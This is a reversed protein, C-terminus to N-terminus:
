ETDRDSLMREIMTPEYRELLTVPEFRGGDDNWRLLDMAHDRVALFTFQRAHPRVHDWPGPVLAWTGSNAYLAGPRRSLRRFDAVHTHGLAVLPVDLIAAIREAREALAEPLSQEKVNLRRNFISAAVALGFVTAVTLVAMLSTRAFVGGSFWEAQQILNFLLFWVSAALLLFLVFFVVARVIPRMMERVLAYKTVGIPYRRLADLAYIREGVGTERGLAELRRRNELGRRHRAGPAESRANKLARLFFPLHLLLTKFLEFLNYTRLLQLYGDLSLVHTSYPDIVKLRNYVYRVFFSGTPFDILPPLPGDRGDRPLTPDLIHRFSNTADYQHGHEVFIRGPEHHFWEKFTFGVDLAAQDLGLGAANAIALWEESLAARVEPYHLEPDHNGRILVIRNGAQLLRTLALFFGRHGRVIRRMKWAAKCPESALGLREEVRSLQLGYREREAATPVHTVALFDFIDGNLILLVRRQRCSGQVILRDILNSFEEDYFFDEFRSFRGTDASRGEGLHLDSLIYLDDLAQGAPTPSDARPASSPGPGPEM